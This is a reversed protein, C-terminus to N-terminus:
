ACFERSGYACIRHKRYASGHFQTRSKEARVIGGFTCKTTSVFKSIKTVNKNGCWAFSWVDSVCFSQKSYPFNRLIWLFDLCNRLCRSKRACLRSFDKSIYTHWDWYQKWTRCVFTKTKQKKQIRRSQNEPSTRMILGYTLNLLFPSTIAIAQYFVWTLLEDM